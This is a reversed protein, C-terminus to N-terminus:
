NNGTPKLPKSLQAFADGTRRWTVRHQEAMKDYANVVDKQGPNLVVDLIEPDIEVAAVQLLKAFKLTAETNLAIKAYLYQHVTGQSSWGCEHAAKEQTWGLSKAKQKWIRLLNAAAQRQSDTIKRKEGM